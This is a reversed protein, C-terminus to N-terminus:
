GDMYKIYWLQHGRPRKITHVLILKLMQPKSWGPLAHFPVCLRQSHHAKPASAPPVFLDIRYMILTNSPTVRSHQDVKLFSFLYIVTIEARKDLYYHFDHEDSYTNQNILATQFITQLNWNQVETESPSIVRSPSPSPTLNLDYNVLSKNSGKREGKQKCETRLIWM